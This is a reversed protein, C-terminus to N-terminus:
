GKELWEGRDCLLEIYWVHGMSNLSRQSIDEGMQCAVDAQDDHELLSQTLIPQLVHEGGVDSGVDVVPLLVAERLHGAQEELPGELHKGLGM